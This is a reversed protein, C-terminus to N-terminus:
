SVVCWEHTEFMHGFERLCVVLWLGHKSSLLVGLCVLLSVFKCVLLSVFLFVFLCSVFM